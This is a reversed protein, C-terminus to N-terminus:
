RARRFGHGAQVVVDGTTRIKRGRQDVQYKQPNRLDVTASMADVKVGSVEDFFVHRYVFDEQYWDPVFRGVEKRILFTCCQSPCFFDGSDTFGM